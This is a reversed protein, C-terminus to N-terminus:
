LRELVRASLTDRLAPDPIMELVEGVFAMQQLRAAEEATIGRSRMYFLEDENLRGVTAGHSCKVDDAYIELQPMATARAETSLLLNHNAQYAETKQADPAVYILGDFRAQARDRLIGKFLQSSYCEPVDHSLRIDFSMQQDGGPLYLGGLRCEAHPGALRIKMRNSVQKGGLAIFIMQLSSEEALTVEFDADLVADAAADQLVYAVVSEGPGLILPIHGSANNFTYNRIDSVDM